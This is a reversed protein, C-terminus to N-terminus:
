PASLVADVNQGFEAASIRVMGNPAQSSWGIGNDGYELRAAYDCANAYYVIGGLPFELAKLAEAWGRSQDTDDIVSTDVQNLSCNWNCRFHGGVYTKGAKLPFNNKLTRASPGSGTKAIKYDQFMQRNMMTVANAEWLDPNGVPSRDYIRKFLDYTLKKGATEIDKKANAAIKDFPITFAAM